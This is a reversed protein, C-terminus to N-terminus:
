RLVSTWQIPSQFRLVNKLTTLKLNLNFIKLKFTACSMACCQSKSFIKCCITFKLKKSNYNHFISLNSKNTIPTNEIYSKWNKNLRPNWESPTGSSPISTSPRSPGWRPDRGTFSETSSTPTARAGSSWVPPSFRTSTAAPLLSLKM